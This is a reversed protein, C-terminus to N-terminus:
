LIRIGWYNWARMLPIEITQPDHGVFYTLVSRTLLAVGISAVLSTVFPRGRLLRFVLWGALVSAAIGIALAGLMAASASAAIAKQAPVAAYASVTMYDGTAANAFRAVGMVLTLALAPLAILLGEVLGNLSYNLLSIFTVNTGATILQLTAPMAGAVADSCHRGIGPSQKPARHRREQHHQHQLRPIRRRAQRFQAEVLRGPLQDKRIEVKGPRRRLLPRRHRGRRRSGPDECQNG